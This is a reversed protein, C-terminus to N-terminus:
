KPPALINGAVERAFLGADPTLGTMRLARVTEVASLVTIDSGSGALALALLVTEGHRPSTSASRMREVFLASPAFRKENTPVDTVKVWADGPIQFGVADLLLLISAAQERRAHADTKLDTNKLFADLWKTFAAPYEAESELGAFVAIPWFSDLEAGVLPMGISAHRALKLWELAAENKGALSYVHAVLGSVPNSEPTAPIDGMMEVLVEGGGNNLLAPTATQMFKSVDALRNQQSKDQTAAQYLLAHLRPGSESNNSATALAEPTFFTNHYAAALDIASILGREAAREALGLRAVDERAKASLLEPILTTDPHVYVESPLPLDTLRLLALTLPKLPTLQRPLQKNNGMINKEAVYFYVDDKVNQAHLLDLTLQAAKNDNGRLQCILMLKQWEVGNHTKVIDPLKTCVDDRQPSILAAEAVLRLTIEDIQEPKALTALKWADEADGLSLLKEIRMSTLSQNSDTTGEPAAATTLLFRRALNNLAKSSTPLSLAPFLKAVLARSTSKWMEAGLGGEAGALLGISEPDINGIAAAEVPKAISVPATVPATTPVVVPTAAMSTPPSVSAPAATLTSTPTLASAAVPPASEPATIIVPTMKAASALPAPAPVSTAPTLTAPPLFSADRSSDVTAAPMPMQAFAPDSFVTLVGLLLCTKARSVTM